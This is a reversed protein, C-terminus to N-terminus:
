KGFVMMQYEREADAVDTVFAVMEARKAGSQIRLFGQTVLLAAAIDHDAGLDTLDVMAKEIIAKTEAKKDIM